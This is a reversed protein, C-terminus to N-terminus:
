RPGGPVAQPHRQQGTTRHNDTPDRPGTQPPHHQPADAPPTPEPNTAGTPTPSTPTPSPSAHAQHGTPTSAPPSPSTANAPQPHRVPKSPSAHPPPSAAYQTAPQQDPNSASPSLHGSPAASSVWPLKRRQPMDHHRPHLRVADDRVPKDGPLRKHEAVLLRQMRQPLVPQM